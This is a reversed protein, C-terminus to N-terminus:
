VVQILELLGGEVPAWERADFRLAPKKLEAAPKEVAAPLRTLHATVAQITSNPPKRGAVLQRCAALLLDARQVLEVKSTSAEISLTLFDLLGRVNTPTRATRAVLFPVAPSQDDGQIEPADIDKKARAVGEALKAHLQAAAEERSTGSSPAAAGAPQQRSLDLRTKLAQAEVAYERWRKAPRQGDEPLPLNEIARVHELALEPRPETGRLYRQALLYHAAAQRINLDRTPKEGEVVQHRAVIEAVLEARALDDYLMFQDLLFSSAELNDPDQNRLVEDYLKRASAHLKNREAAGTTGKDRVEAILGRKWLVKARLLLIQTSLAKSTGTSSKSMGDLQADLDAYLSEAAVPDQAYVEEAQAFKEQAKELARDPSPFYTDYVWYGGIGLGAGVAIAVVLLVLGRLSVFASRM